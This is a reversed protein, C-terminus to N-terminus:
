RATPGTAAPGLRAVAAVYADRRPGAPLRGTGLVAPDDPGHTTWVRALRELVQQRRLGSRTLREAAAWVEAPDDDWLQNM